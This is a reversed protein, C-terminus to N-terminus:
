HCRDPGLRGPTDGITMVGSRLEREAALWDSLADGEGDSRALYIEQARRAVQEHTIESGVDTTEFAGVRRGTRRTQRGHSTAAVVAHTARTRM